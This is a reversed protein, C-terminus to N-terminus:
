PRESRREPRHPILTGLVRQADGAARALMHRNAPLLRVAGHVLARRGPATPVHDDVPAEGDEGRQQRASPRRQKQAARAPESPLAGLVLRHLERRQRSTCLKSTFTNQHTHVAVGTTNAATPVRYQEHTTNPFARKNREEAGLHRAPQPTHERRWPPLM